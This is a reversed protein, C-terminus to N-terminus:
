THVGCRIPALCDHGASVELREHDGQPGSLNNYVHSNALEVTDVIPDLCCMGVVM